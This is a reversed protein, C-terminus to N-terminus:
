AFSMESPRHGLEDLMIMALPIMLTQVIRQNVARWRDAGTVDV